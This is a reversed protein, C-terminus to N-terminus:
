GMRPRHVACGLDRQDVAFRRLIKPNWSRNSSSDDDLEGEPFSDAWRTASSRREIAEPPLMGRERRRTSASTPCHLDATVGM